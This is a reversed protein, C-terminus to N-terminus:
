PKLLIKKVYFLRVIIRRQLMLYEEKTTRERERERERKRERGFM